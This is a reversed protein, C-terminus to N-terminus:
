FVSMMMKECLSFFEPYANCNKAVNKSRWYQQVLTSLLDARCDCRGSSSSSAVVLGYELFSNEVSEVLVRHEIRARWGVVVVPRGNVHRALRGGHMRGVLDVRRIAVRRRQWRGLGNMPSNKDFVAVLVGVSSTFIRGREVRRAEKDLVFHLM